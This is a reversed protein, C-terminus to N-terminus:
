AFGGNELWYCPVPTGGPAALAGIPRDILLNAVALTRLASSDREALPVTEGDVLCARLFERRDQGAPLPSALPLPIAIPFPRAAGQLARLVPLLFLFATVYSSAPNGPLGLVIQRGLRAVLLPKGPRIAVRWFALSAGCDELAGRVHDHEGVSAGATTVLVDADAADQIARALASRDDPLPGIRRATAGATVAMAAVMAGNSAPIRDPHPDAPDASLEDGCEIIALFPRRAVAVEGHGAARALAIQTPGLRTGKELLSDREAFDFGRRRIHRDPPPAAACLGDKALTADEIPVIGTTGPPCAAGTSIKAAEGSALSAAFPAGARSEGIIRWPGPGAVAFGDMVSLDRAPQTRRAVLDDALYRDAAEDVPITEHDLPTVLAFLQDLASELTIPDSIM